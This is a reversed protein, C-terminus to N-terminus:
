DIGELMAGRSIDEKRELSRFVHEAESEKCPALTFACNGM